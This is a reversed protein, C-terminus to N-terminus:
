KTKPSRKVAKDAPPAETIPTDTTAAKDTASFHAPFSSLLWEGVTMAVELTEGAKVDYDGHRFSQVCYLNM